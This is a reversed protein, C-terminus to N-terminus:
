VPLATSSKTQRLVFDTQSTRVIGLGLIKRLIFHELAEPDFAYVKLVFDHAGTISCCEVIQEEAQVFTEFKSIAADSHDILSVHVFAVAQLDLKKPNLVAVYRDILGSAELKRVRRWCPSTSLNVQQALEQLGIKGQKQLIVLIRRDFDDLNPL